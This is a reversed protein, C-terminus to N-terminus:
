QMFETPSRKTFNAQDGALEALIRRVVEVTEGDYGICYVLVRVASIPRRFFASRM